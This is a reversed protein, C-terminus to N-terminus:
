GAVSPPSPPLPPSCGPSGLGELLELPLDLSLFAPSLLWRLPFLSSVWDGLPELGECMLEFPLLPPAWLPLLWGSLLAACCPSNAWSFGQVLSGSLLWPSLRDQWVLLLVLLPPLPGPVFTVTEGPGQFIGPDSLSGLVSRELDSSCM